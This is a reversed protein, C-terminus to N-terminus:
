RTAVKEEYYIWKLGDYISPFPVHGEEGYLMSEILATAPVAQRLRRLPARCCTRIRPRFVSAWPRSQGSATAWLRDWSCRLARTRLHSPYKPYAMIARPPKNVVRFWCRICRMAAASAPRSSENIVSHEQGSTETGIQISAFFESCYFRCSSALAVTASPLM